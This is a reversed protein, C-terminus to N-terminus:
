TLLEMVRVGLSELWSLSTWGEVAQPTENILVMGSEARTTAIEFLPQFQVALKFLHTVLKTAVGAQRTLNSTWPNLSHVRRSSM